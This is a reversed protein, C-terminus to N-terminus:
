QQKVWRIADGIVARGASLNTLVVKATDPSLYYTGLKNWGGEASEYDFTVEEIGEDHFIKFHFDKFPNERDAQQQAMAGETGGDAPGGARGAGGPGGRAAGGGRVAMRNVMKGVYTYIDYYGSSPIISWWTITKDGTGAKTYVSSRIYKGYYANQVVSQWYEPQWYNNVTQYSEGSRNKIGLMRKLPNVADSQSRIFGPGENDIIIEGPETFSSLSSLIEEGEFEKTVDKSKLIESIPVNIEGPINKSSLTNILMARPQADLVVGIKKAEMPGLYVIKSIDAAEM